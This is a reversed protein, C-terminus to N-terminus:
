ISIWQLGTKILLKFKDYLNLKPRKSFIDAQLIKTRQLIEKGGNLTLLIEFKLKGNLHKILNEGHIFLEDTRKIQAEFIRQFREDNIKNFFDAEPYKNEGFDSLPFYIRGKLIDLSVDQLFNTIQLATCISDSYSVNEESDKGFLLLILRGVPNASHSCYFLIEDFNNYRTKDLDMLFAKVLNEPLQKPINFKTVAEKLAIFVPHEAYGEYCEDLMKLWAELGAKRENLPINENDAIDDAFRAFAYISYVYKRIRRPVFLGVPFNEYHQKAAAECYKFAEQVTM